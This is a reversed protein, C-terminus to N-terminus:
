APPVNGANLFIGSAWAGFPHGGVSRHKHSAAKMTATGATAADEFCMAPGLPPRGRQATRRGCNLVDADNAADVDASLGFKLLHVVVM